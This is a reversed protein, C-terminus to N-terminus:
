ISGLENNFQEYRALDQIRCTYKVVKLAKTFDAMTIPRVDDPNVDEVREMDLDRICSMAAEKCLYQLDSNSYNATKNALSTIQRTTLSHSHNQLLFLLLEKRSKVDPLPVYVRKPLRRMMAPDLGWPINTAGILFVHHSTDTSSTSQLGDLCVLFESKLRRMADDENDCRASLISDIEDIFLISPACRHAEQFLQRIKKETDGFFKSTFSSASLSFFHSNSEGALGKALLTKGTGPPGFLLLGRPTERLGTFLAPNKMPLLVTERLINKQDNLGAINSFNFDRVSVIFDSFTSNPVPPAHHTRSLVLLRDKCEKALTHLTAPQKDPIDWATHINFIQIHLSLAQKYLTSSQAHNQAEDASIAEKVCKYFNQVLIQRKSSQSPRSRSHSM